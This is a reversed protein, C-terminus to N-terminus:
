AIICSETPPDSSYANIEIPNDLYDVVIKSLDENESTVKGTAKRPRSFLGPSSANLMEDVAEKPRKFFGLGVVTRQV